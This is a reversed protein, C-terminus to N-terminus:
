KQCLDMKWKSLKIPHLYLYNIPFQDLLQKLSHDYKDLEQDKTEWWLAKGQLKLDKESVIEKASLVLSTPLAIEVFLNTASFM